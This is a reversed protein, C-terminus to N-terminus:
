QTALFANVLGYGYLNDPGTAGLDTATNQLKNQVEEPDWRSNGNIDYTPTILTNLILAAVGAVHPSAMSTGSLTAYKNGKYTSFISVGPASLDVESGRSSWSPIINNSDTASVAIIEPYAAPFNVAGGSNGAAAIQVIGASKARIVADHFSQINSSTGLSMNIIQMNNAIAWDIGEIVDSLFGSGRRDLVKIAYLDALPAVGIVGISNNLAGIIGAVHSGHGNDDNASNTSYAPWITNIGGKINASLDQHILDIGTDIVGVKILDANNGNPWVLEANVRDIGWPLVQSPSSVNQQARNKDNIKNENNELASVIVDEDIRLVEPNDLLEKEKFKSVLVASGKISKLHKIRSVESKELIKDKAEESLDTKFVVIKRSSYDALSFIPLIIVIALFLASVFSIKKNVRNSIKQRTKLM